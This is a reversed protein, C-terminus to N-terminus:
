NQLNLGFTKLKLKFQDDSPAEKNALQLISQEDLSQGAKKDRLSAMKLMFSGKCFTVNTAMYQQLVQTNRQWNNNYELQETEVVRHGEEDKAMLAICTVSMRGQHAQYRYDLGKLAGIRNM